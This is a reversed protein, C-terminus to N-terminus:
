LPERNSVLTNDACKRRRSVMTSMQRTYEKKLGRRAGDKNKALDVESVIDHESVTEDGDPGRTVHEHSM